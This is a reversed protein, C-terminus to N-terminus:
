LFDGAEPMEEMAELVIKNEKSEGHRPRRFQLLVKKVM